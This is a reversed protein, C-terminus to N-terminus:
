PLAPDKKFLRTGLYISSILPTVFALLAALAQLPSLSFLSLAALFSFIALACLLINFVLLLSNTCKMLLSPTYYIAAIITGASIATYISFYLPDKIHVGQGFSIITLSLIFLIFISNITITLSKM